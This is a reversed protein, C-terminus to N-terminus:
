LQCVAKDSPILSPTSDRSTLYAPEVVWPPGSPTMIGERHCSTCHARQRKSQLSHRQMDRVAPVRFMKHIQNAESDKHPKIGMRLFVHTKDLPPM